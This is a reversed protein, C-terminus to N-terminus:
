TDQNVEKVYCTFLAGYQDTTVRVILLSTGGPTAIVDHKRPQLPLDKGSIYALSHEAKFTEPLLFKDDIEDFVVYVKTETFDPTYTGSVEDYSSTDLKRKMTCQGLETSFKNILSSSIAKFKTEYM